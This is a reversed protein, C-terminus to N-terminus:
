EPMERAGIWELLRPRSVRVRRGLRIIVGPPLAGPKGAPLTALRYFERLNLGLVTAGWEASEVLRDAGM